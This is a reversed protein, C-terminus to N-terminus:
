HSNGFRIIGNEVVRTMARAQELYILHAISEGMAFMTQHPDSIEREFLVPLLEAASRPSKECAALLVGCREEHHAHLQAVRDHLGRFPKGHSPLVLTDPPLDTYRDISALFAGLPNADPIAAFASVNTSIRPLLMDGSILVGLEACYLSAHEASHGFGTIVRWVHGDVVIEDGEFLRRFAAPIAPVGRGYANGRAELAAIPEADLGHRRFLDAMAPIGYGAIQHKVLQATAYEGQTMWLAAGTEEELWAALGLHDPHFHTVIQRRLPHAALVSRWADKVPDLAIGTDVATWGDGDKLLWLNIHDLAFPLPMRLWRVGPAVDTACGPAPLAEHTYHLRM